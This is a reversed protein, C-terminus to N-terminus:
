KRVLLIKRNETSIYLEGLNHNIKKEKRTYNL